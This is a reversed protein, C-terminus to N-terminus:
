TRVCNGFLGVLGGGRTVAVAMRPMVCFTTGTDSNIKVFSPSFLETQNAFWDMMADWKVLQTEEEVSGMLDKKVDQWFTDEDRTLPDITIIAKPHICNNFAHRIVKEDIIRPPPWPCRLWFSRFVDSSESGMGVELEGFRADLEVTLHRCLDLDETKMNILSNKYHESPEIVGTQHIMGAESDFTAKHSIANNPWENSSKDGVGYNNQCEKFCKLM